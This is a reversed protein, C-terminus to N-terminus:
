EIKKKQAGMYYKTLCELEMQRLLFFFTRPNSLPMCVNTSDTCPCTKTMYMYDHCPYRDNYAMYPYCCNSSLIAALQCFQSDFM